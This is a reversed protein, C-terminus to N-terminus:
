SDLEYIINISKLPQDQGQVDEGGLWFL